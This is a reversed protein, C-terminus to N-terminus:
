VRFGLGSKGQGRPPSLAVEVVACKIPTTYIIITERERERERYMYTHIYVCVCTCITAVGSECLSLRDVNRLPPHLPFM